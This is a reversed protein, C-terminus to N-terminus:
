TCSKKGRKKEYCGCATKKKEIKRVAVLHLKKEETKKKKVEV